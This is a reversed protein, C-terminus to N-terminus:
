PIATRLSTRGASWSDLLHRTFRAEVVSVAQAGFLIDAGLEPEERALGGALQRAAVTQHHADAVVHTDYFLRAWPGFGHRRLAVSYRGMPEVSTMEFVALHGVLAGRWRRHLGFFSVLNVTALTPGPILDLYAGYADDLGMERMSLGFLEAHMDKQVGQGYEDAQIEVLAAKAAGALRPLAWSHPDAEKLQYASRHVVFERVQELSAREAMHTSLSPGDSAALLAQLQVPVDDAEVGAGTLDQVRGLFAQELYRRFALLSPEWEWEEDVGAFGRYHLEYCVYLALAADEGDLPDDEAAPAAPLTRAPGRLAELLHASVWGRPQPLVPRRDRPRQLLALEQPTVTM